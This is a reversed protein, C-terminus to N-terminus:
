GRFIDLGWPPKPLGKENSVRERSIINANNNKQETINKYVLYIKNKRRGGCINLQLAAPSSYRLTKYSGETHKVAHLKGDAREREVTEQVM